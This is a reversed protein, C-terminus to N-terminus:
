RATQRWSFILHKMMEEGASWPAGPYDRASDSYFARRHIRRQLHKFGLTKDFSGARFTYSFKGGNMGIFNRPDQEVLRARMKLLYERRNLQYLWPKFSVFSMLREVISLKLNIM